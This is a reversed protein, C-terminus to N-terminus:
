SCARLVRLRYNKFSRYGYGRKLITKAVNNFGEVRANTHGYIFHALIETRWLVLTKRLTIIEPETSAAMADLMRSLAVRAKEIGKCRYLKHISEKFLWIERLRKHDVLWKTLLSKVKFDLKHGNKLLLKRVILNRKDGTIEKRARNIAPHLLRVVHFKDAVIAANPFFSKSFSRYTVSLDMTVLKVAERGKIYDLSAKLENVARGEVLEFARKNHGHSVIFTAFRTEGTKTDRGFRHEDIGLKVPWTSINHKTQTTLVDYLSKYIFGYSCHFHKRVSKIDSYTECAWLLAKRFRETFRRGKGIGPVPETFPKKCPKCHFRRKRIILLVPNQRVPEDKIKVERHDYVSSSRTACKPCFEFKSVKDAKMVLVNPAKRDVSRIELEPLLLFPALSDAPM